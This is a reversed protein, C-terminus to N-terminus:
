HMEAVLWVWTDQEAGVLSHLGSELKAADTVGVLSTIDPLFLFTKRCTATLMEYFIAGLAWIDGPAAAPPAASTNHQKVLEPPAYQM